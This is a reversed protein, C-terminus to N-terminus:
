DPEYVSFRVSELDFDPSGPDTSELLASAERRVRDALERTLDDEGQGVTKKEGRGAAARERGATPRERGGAARLGGADIDHRAASGAAFGERARVGPSGPVLSEGVKCGHLELGGHRTWGEDRPASVGRM